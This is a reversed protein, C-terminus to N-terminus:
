DDEGGEEEDDSETPQNYGENEQEETEGAPKEGPAECSVLGGALTLMVVASLMGGLTSKWNWNPDFMLLRMCHM